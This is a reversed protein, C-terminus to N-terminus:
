VTAPLVMTFASCLLPPYCIANSNLWYPMYIYDLRRGTNAGLLIRMKRVLPPRKDPDSLVIRFRRKMKVQERAGTLSCVDRSGVARVYSHLVLCVSLWAICLVRQTTAMAVIDSGVNGMVRARKVSSEPLVAGKWFFGLSREIKKFTESKWQYQQAAKKIGVPVLHFFPSFHIKSFFSFLDARVWRKEQQSRRVLTRWMPM